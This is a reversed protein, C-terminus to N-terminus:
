RPKEENKKPKGEKRKIIEEILKSAEQKTLGEPIKVKQQILYNIQKETAQNGDRNKNPNTKREEAISEHICFRVAIELFDKPYIEEQSFEKELEDYYARIKKVDMKEFFM